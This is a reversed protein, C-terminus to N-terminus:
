EGTDAGGRSALRRLAAGLREDTCHAALDRLARCSAPRLEPAQRPARQPAADSATVRTRLGHCEIGAEGLRRTLEAEMFRLRTVWAPADCALSLKGGSFGAVKVHARMAPPLCPHLLQELHQNQRSKKLWDPNLSSHIDKM